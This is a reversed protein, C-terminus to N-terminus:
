YAAKDVAQKVGEVTEEAQEQVDNVFEKTGPYIPQDLNLKEKITDLIGEAKQKTERAPKNISEGIKQTTEPATQPNKNDEFIENVKEQDNERFPSENSNVQYQTAEPTYPEAEAQLSNDFGLAVNFLFEMGVISLSVIGRVFANQM